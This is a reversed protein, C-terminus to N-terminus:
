ASYVVLIIEEIRISHHLLVTIAHTTLTATTPLTLATFVMIMVDWYESRCVLGVELDMGHFLVLQVSSLLGIIVSERM